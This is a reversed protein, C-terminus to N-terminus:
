SKNYFPLSNFYLAKQFYTQGAFPTAETALKESADVTWDPGRRIHSSALYILRPCDKHRWDSSWRGWLWASRLGRPGGLLPPPLPQRVLWWEGPSGTALSEWPCRLGPGPPRRCLCSHRFIRCWTCLKLGWRGPEWSPNEVPLTFQSLVLLFHLTTMIIVFIM